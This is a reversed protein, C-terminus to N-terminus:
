VAVVGHSLWERFEAELAKCDREPASVDRIGASKVTITPKIAPFRWVPKDKSLVPPECTLLLPVVPVGAQRAIEFAGRRFPHLGGVPSRTGEPFILVSFGERLRATLGEIAMLGGGLSGDGSSVHGLSRLFPGVVPNAVLSPKVVCCVHPAQAIIAVVDLLTPHNAVVVSPSLLPEPAAYKVSLVGLGDLRALFWRWSASVTRQIRRRRAIPDREVLHLVPLFLWAIAVAGLWFLMTM